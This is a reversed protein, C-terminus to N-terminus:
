VDLAAIKDVETMRGKLSNIKLVDCPSFHSIMRYSAILSESIEQGKEGRQSLRFIYFNVKKPRLLLFKGLCM